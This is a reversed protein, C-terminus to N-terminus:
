KCLLLLLTQLLALYSTAGSSNPVKLDSVRRSYSAAPLLNEFISMTRMSVSDDQHCTTDLVHPPLKSTEYLVHTYEKWHKLLHHYIGRFMFFSCDLITSRFRQRYKLDCLHFSRSKKFIEKLHVFSIFYCRRRALCSCITFASTKQM